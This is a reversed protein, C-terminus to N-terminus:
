FLLFFLDPLLQLPLLVGQQYPFATLLAALAWLGRQRSWRSASPKGPRDGVPNLSFKTDARWHSWDRGLQSPFCNSGTGCAVDPPSAETPPFSCQTCWSIGPFVSIVSKPVQFLTQFVKWGERSRRFSNTDAERWCCSGTFFSQFLHMSSNKNTM